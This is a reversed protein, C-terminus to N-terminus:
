QQRRRRPARPSSTLSSAISNLNFNIAFVLSRFVPLYTCVSIPCALLIPPIMSYGRSVKDPAYPDSEGPRSNQGFHPGKKLFFTSGEHSWVQCNKKLIDITGTWTHGKSGLIVKKQDQFVNIHAM